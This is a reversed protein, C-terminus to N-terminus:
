CAVTTWSSRVRSAVDRGLGDGRFVIEQPWGAGEDETICAPQGWTEGRDTSRLVMGIAQEPDGRHGTAPLLLEGDPLECVAGHCGIDPWGEPEPIHRPASWTRGDDDSRAMHVGGGVVAMDM